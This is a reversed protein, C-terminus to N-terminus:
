AAGQRKAARRAIGARIPGDRQAQKAARRAAVGRAIRAAARQASRRERARLQAAVCVPCYRAAEVLPKSCNHCLAVPALRAGRPVGLAYSAASVVAEDPGCPLAVRASEITLAVARGTVVNAATVRFFRVLGCQLSRPTM